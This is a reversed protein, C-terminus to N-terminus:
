QDGENEDDDAPGGDWAAPEHGTYNGSGDTNGPCDREGDRASSWHGRITHSQGGASTLDITYPQQWTLADGCHRCQQPFDEIRQAKAVNAGEELAHSESDFGWVSDVHAWEDGHGHECAPTLREVIFGVFEGHAWRNYVDLEARLAGAVDFEPDLALEPRVKDNPAWTVGIVHAGEVGDTDTSDGASPGDTGNYLPLVTHADLAIRLHRCLARVSISSASHVFTLDVAETIVGRAYPDDTLLYLGRVNTVDINGINDWDRPSEASEDPAIRVRFTGADTVIHESEDM